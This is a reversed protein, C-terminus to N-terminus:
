NKDLEDYIKCLFLTFMKNFANPKDSVTNHRLIELFRNFIFSADTDKIDELKNYTLARSEFDYTKVRDDFVGNQKTFKNWRMYFDEVNSTENLGIQGIALTGHKLGSIIGEDENYGLMTGNEWTYKAAAPSQSVMLKFREMLMDRADAIMKDLVRMFKEVDRGAEMALTPLIITVPALNGRGDKQNASYFANKKFKNNTAIYKFLNKFYEANCNIDYSNYTRCM